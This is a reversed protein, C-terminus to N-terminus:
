DMQGIGLKQHNQKIYDLTIEEPVNKDSKFSENYITRFIGTVKDRKGASSYAFNEAKANNLSHIQKFKNKDMGTLGSAVILLSLGVHVVSRSVM